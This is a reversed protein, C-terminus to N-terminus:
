QHPMASNKAVHKAPAVKVATATKDGGPSSTYHVTAKAGPALDGQKKTDSNLAFSTEEAKGNVKHSLVLKSDDASVVQGSAVFIKAKSQKETAAATSKQGKPMKAWLSGSAVLSLAIITVVLTKKV